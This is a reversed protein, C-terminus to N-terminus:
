IEGVNQLRTQTFAVVEHDDSGRFVANFDHFDRGAAGMIVVRERPM